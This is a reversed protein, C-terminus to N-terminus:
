PGLKGCTQAVNSAILDLTRFAPEVNRTVNFTISAAHRTGRTINNLYGIGEDLVGAVYRVLTPMSDAAQQKLM